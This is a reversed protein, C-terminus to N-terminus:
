TREVWRYAALSNKWFYKEAAEQGQEAVYQRVVQQVASYPGVRECVPWDSGYVVRDPGFQRWLWDLESRYHDLSTVLRGDVRRLVHSVKAFVNPQASLRQLLETAQKALQPDAPPEFPVHDIVIRLQPAQRALRQVNALIPPGGVVDLALGADALRQLDALFDGSIEAGALRAGGVRIGRFLRNKAFRALHQPFGPEGPNLHGVFGVIFREREALDLIWQNDELWASAEVVVTGAVGLPEAQRRYDDPMTRRYLVSDSPDPWPVGQPRSPDYFHTHTDIIKTPAGRWPEAAALQSAAEM